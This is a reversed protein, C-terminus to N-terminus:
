HVGGDPITKLLKNQPWGAELAEVRKALSELTVEQM